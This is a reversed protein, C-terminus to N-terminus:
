RWHQRRHGSLSCGGDGIPAARLHPRPSHHIFEGSRGDDSGPHCAVPGSSLHRRGPEARRRHRDDSRHDLGRRRVAPLGSSGRHGRPRRAAQAPLEGRGRGRPGRLADTAFRTKVVAPAVANVRIKPALEVALVATIHLLMAKSAGYMSIGAAPRLGAMSAVNVISGGRETMGAACAAQTWALAGLANVEVLKRAAGLDISLMPGAVPNIGANNVLLDVPGFAAVTQAVADARHADDDAKGPVGIAVDAGGLSEVAAALNDPNRATICVRAGEGVLRSAIALGIGRSAGTVIATQGALRDARPSESM